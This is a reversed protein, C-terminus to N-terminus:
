VARKKRGFGGLGVLGFGLLALAGPAPVAGVVSTVEFLVGGPGGENFTVLDITNIGAHFLGSLSGATLPAYQLFTAPLLVGNIALEGQDDFYTNYNITVANPDFGTLDFTTRYTYPVYDGQAGDSFSITGRTATNLGWDFGTPHYAPSGVFTGLSYEDLYYGSGSPTYVQWHPDISGPTLTNGASDVGTNYLGLLPAAHAGSLSGFLGMLFAVALVKRGFFQIM